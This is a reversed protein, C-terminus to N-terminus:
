DLWVDLDDNNNYERDYFSNEGARIIYHDIREGESARIYKSVGKIFWILMKSTGEYHPKDTSKHKNSLNFVTLCIYKRPVTINTVEFEDLNYIKKDTQYRISM